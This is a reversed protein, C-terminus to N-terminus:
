EDHNNQKYDSKMYFIDILIITVAIFISPGSAMITVLLINHLYLITSGEILPLLRWLTYIGKTIGAVFILLALARFFRSGVTTSYM